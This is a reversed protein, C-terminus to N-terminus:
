RTTRGPHQDPTAPAPRRPPHRRRRRGPRPPRDPRGRRDPPGPHDPRRRPVDRRSGPERPHRRLRRLVAPGRAPDPLAPGAPRGPAVRLHHPRHPHGRRRLRRLGPRLLRLRGPRGRGVPLAQRGPAARVRDGGRRRRVPRPRHLPGGLGARRHRLGPLPQLRLGGAPHGGPHGLRRRERVADGRRHLDRRGPRLREAPRRPRGDVAYQAFTAPEFQMPGEAGAYNAGSHVGPATSRGHDSEVKGIGALVGWPLGPCTQAADMYLALYAPPIDAPGAVSPGGALSTSAQSAASTRPSSCAAPRAPSRGGARRSRRAVQVRAAGQTLDPSLWRASHEGPACGM